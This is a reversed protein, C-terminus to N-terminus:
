ATLVAHWVRAIRGQGIITEFSLANRVGEETTLDKEDPRYSITAAIYFPDNDCVQAIYPATADTIPVKYTYAYNYVAELAENDALSGLHWEDYRATLHGLIAELWGIYSGAVIQPSVKSEATGM